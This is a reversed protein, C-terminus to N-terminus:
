VSQVRRRLVRAARAGFAEAGDRLLVRGDARLQRSRPLDGDVLGDRSVRERTRGHQDRHADHLLPRGQGIPGDTFRSPRMGGEPLMALLRRGLHRHCHASRRAPPPTTSRDLCGTTSRGELVALVSEARLLRWPPSSPWHPRWGDVSDQCFYMIDSWGELTMAQFITLFARGMDDFTTFGWNMDETYTAAHTMRYRNRRESALGVSAGDLDVARPGTGNFRANGLADYDSGCWTASSGGGRPGDGCRYSGTGHSCFRADDPDLPWYCAHPASWDSTSKTWSPQDAPLDFNFARLDDAASRPRERRPVRLRASRGDRQARGRERLRAHRPFADHPLAHPAPRRSCAPHWHSSSSLVRASSRSPACCGSSWSRCAPCPPSRRLPRLVRFTRICSM